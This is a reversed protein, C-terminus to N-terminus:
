LKTLLHKFILGISKKEYGGVTPFGRLRWIIKTLLIFFVGVRGFLKNKYLYLEFPLFFRLLRSDLSVMYFHILRYDRSKLSVFFIHRIEYKTFTKFSRNKKGSNLWKDYTLNIRDVVFMEYDLSKSQFTSTTQGEVDGFYISLPFGCYVVSTVFAISFFLEYDENRKMGVRFGNVRNFIEKSVVTASTHSFVHPNEFYNINRIQNEYKRALRYGTTNDYRVYGACCIMGSEPFKEIAGKMVELYTPLWEDDGDLFAIYNYKANEVGKNRAASVGQNSQNIIRIRSDQTFNRIVDIGNDTSGDNVIVVEFEAYTQELVSNLTRTIVHAKNYLPIVVSFM